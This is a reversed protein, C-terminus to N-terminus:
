NDDVKKKGTQNQNAKEKIKKLAAKSPTMPAFNEYRWDQIVIRQALCLKRIRGLCKRLRIGSAHTQKLTWKQNLEFYKRFEKMIEDHFDNAPLMM